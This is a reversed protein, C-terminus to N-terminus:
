YLLIEILLSVHFILRHPIQLIPSCSSVTKPAFVRAPFLGGQSAIGFNLHKWIYLFNEQLRPVPTPSSSHLVRHQSTNTHSFSRILPHSQLSALCERSLYHVPQLHTEMRGRHQFSLQIVASLSFMELTQCRVFSQSITLRDPRSQDLVPVLQQLKPSLPFNHMHSVICMRLFLRASQVKVRLKM